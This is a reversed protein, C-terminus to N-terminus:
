SVHNLARLISACARDIEEFTISLPPALRLCSPEYLFWDSFVGEQELLYRIAAMCRETSEVQVALLLGLGRVEKIHRHVLQKKFRDSKEQVQFQELEEMVISLAEDAAACVLANGGFTSLHGLIPKDSLQLMWEPRTIFAGIPLGGGLAKGLLLVDPVVGYQEFCFLTGTRGIGTQIEDFVLLSQTRDCYARLAEIYAKDSVKSGREAQVLEVFIAAVGEDPLQEVAALDNQDIFRVGPLLPHYKQNYYEHSMLSLPGQTSGHYADTQAVFASRGTCRKALKMAGEVAESGSNTLFTMSLFAPLASALRAGLESSPAQITEGYVMTHLFRDAQDKIRQVIRPHNHGLSSVSIGSILDLYANGAPDYLYHGEARAIELGLPSPSTQALHSFFAERPSLHM